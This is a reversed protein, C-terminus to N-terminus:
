GKRRKANKKKLISNKRNPIKKNKKKSAPSDISGGTMWSLSINGSVVSIEAVVARLVDGIRFKWGTHRGVLQRKKHDLIYFDDPLSKRSIFGEAQASVISVFLGSVTVGTIIVEQETGLLSSLVINAMRNVACREAKASVQETESIHRCTESILEKSEKAMGNSGLNCATILARHVLLDSYRRIPSTFHTYRQLGLGYHGINETSYNARSQCRLIANQLLDNNPHNEEWKKLLLNFQQPTFYISDPLKIDMEDSFSVLEALKAPSPPEHVRYVCTKQKEELTEAACINALVMFEEILENAPKQQRIEIDIPFMETSFKISRESLLLELTGRKRSIEKRCKYVAFLHHLTGNPLSLQREDFIGEYVSQVNDYTLRAISKMIGRIFRHKTKNGTADLYIEVALCAREQHPKLSCLDNSLNEPLMPLVRGPLYVTNGRKKAEVDIVSDECVYHSVDAIAIVLRWGGDQTPEAFVADDFDKADGGDITILNLKTLDERESHLIPKPILSSELVEDPFIEVLNFEDITMQLISQPNTVHGIINTLKAKKLYKDSTKVFEAKILAGDELNKCDAIDVLIPKHNGKNANEIYWKDNSKFARGYVYNQYKNKPLIRIIEATKRIDQKNKIRALVHDGANPSKGRKSSTNIEAQFEKNKLSQNVLKAIAIGDTDISSIEMICLEPINSKEGTEQSNNPSSGLDILLQRLAARDNSAVGFVRAIERLKLPKPSTVILEQLEQKSPLSKKINVLNHIM